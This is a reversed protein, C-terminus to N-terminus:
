VQGASRRAPTDIEYHPARTVSRSRGSRPGRRVVCCPFTGCHIQRRLWDVKEDDAAARGAARQGGASRPGRARAHQQALGPAVHRRRIDGRHQGRGIRPAGIELLFPQPARQLGRAAVAAGVLRGLRPEVLLRAQQAAPRRDVADAGIAARRVVIVLPRRDARMAPAPRVHQGVELLQLAVGVVALRQVALGARHRDLPMPLLVPGAVRADHGLDEGVHAVRHVLVLVTGPGVAHEGGREVDIRVARSATGCQHIERGLHPPPRVQRHQGLARQIPQHDGAPADLRRPEGAVVALAEADGRALDITEAPASCLGTTSIRLPMPGPACRESCPM